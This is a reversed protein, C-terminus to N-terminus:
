AVIPAIPAAREDAQIRHRIAIARPCNTPSARYPSPHGALSGECCALVEGLWQGVEALAMTGVIAAYRSTTVAKM